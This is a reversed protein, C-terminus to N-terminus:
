KKIGIHDLASVGAHMLVEDCGRLNIFLLHGCGHGLV